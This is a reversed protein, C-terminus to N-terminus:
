RGPVVRLYLKAGPTAEVLRRAEAEDLVICATALGDSLTACPAVVTALKPEGYRLLGLRPDIIHSYRRGRAEAFQETDGSTSVGCNAVTLWRTGRAARWLRIRWGPRGPPPDGAAIDGGAAVLARSLGRERLVALAADLAYGKAIGGLDLRM